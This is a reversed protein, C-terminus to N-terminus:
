VYKLGFNTVMEANLSEEHTLQDCLKDFVKGVQARTKFKQAKNKDLTWEYGSSVVSSLFNDSVRIVWFSPKNVKM